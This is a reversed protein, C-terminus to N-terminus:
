SLRLVSSGKIKVFSAEPCQQLGTCKSERQFENCLQLQDSPELHAQDTPSLAHGRDQHCPLKVNNYQHLQKCTGQPLCTRVMALFHSGKDM